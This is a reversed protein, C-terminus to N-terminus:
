VQREPSYLMQISDSTSCNYTALLCTNGDLAPSDAPKLLFPKAAEAKMLVVAAWAFILTETILEQMLIFCINQGDAAM